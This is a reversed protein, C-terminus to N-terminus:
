KQLDRQRVILSHSPRPKQTSRVQVDKGVDAAYAGQLINWPSSLFVAVALEAQAGGHEMQTTIDGPKAGHADKGGKKKIKERLKDALFGAFEMQVNSLIVVDLDLIVIM